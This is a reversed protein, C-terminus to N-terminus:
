GGTTAAPKTQLRELLAQSLQGDQALNNDHQYARIAGGTLPGYRGDIPGPSYGAALLARQVDETMASSPGQTAPDPKGTLDHWKEATGKRSTEYAGLIGDRLGGYGEKFAGGIQGAPDDARATSGAAAVIGFVVAFAISTRAM